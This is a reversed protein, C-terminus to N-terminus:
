ARLSLVKDFRKRMEEKGLLKIIQYLDPTQTSGTLAVRIITSIDGCHGKYGSPNQKFEKVERAFGLEFALDKIRGFWTQQDDDAHYIAPYRELVARIDGKSYQAPFVIANYDHLANFMYSFLRSIDAWCAIDKHPREKERDINFVATAYAKDTKLIEAFELNYNKAWELAKEYVQSATFSAVTNKCVDSLKVMDFMAGGASTKSLDIKFENTDTKPNKARWDEYDSNIINLLYDHVGEMPYGQELFFDARAEPDKRKSLKRKIEGEIKLLPSIHAYKPPVFGLAEFIQLHEAMSPLWEDARLVLTTRMLHDDIAHAFSYPPLGDSKILVVDNQNEPVDREGRIVDYTKIRREVSGLSKLRLVWPMGKNLKETIKDMPADRWKAYRGWYGILAKRKEQEARMGELEQSTCFCPYAKGQEVMWKAYARYMERRDSQKYPGYNGKNSGDSCYGEDFVIGFKSFNYPLDFSANEVERKQDTDEIRLYFVGGTQSAIRMNALATNINGIHLFGTPSPAIRTVEASPGLSRPPYMKEYYEPANKVDSFLMEALKVNDM